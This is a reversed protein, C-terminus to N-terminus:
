AAADLRPMSKAAAIVAPAIDDLPLLHEVANLEVAAKPMGYVVCTSEDEAFTHAGLDRLLKLGRAGDRGMGTLLIAMAHAGYTRVVSELTVDIAPRVGHVTPESSLHVTRDVNLVLHTGGPAVLLTGPELFDGEAAERVKLGGAQDLRSALSRTFGPPMHQVIIGPIELGNGLGAVLTYLARPGGTSSGVVLLQGSANRTGMRAAPKDAPAAVATQGEPSPASQVTTSPISLRRISSIAAIKIKQIIDGAVREIDLSISGSPKAVFDIAGSALCRLTIDAGAQTLSSIMIVRRPGRKMLEVLTTYGDMVPMEVDLTIVDPHLEEDKRLADSGDRAAGVVTLGSDRQIIETLMKRMFASDDVVLVSTPAM